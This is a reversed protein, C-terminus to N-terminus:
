PARQHVVEIMENAFEVIGCFRLRLGRIAEDVPEVLEDACTAAVQQQDGSCRGTTPDISVDFPHWFANEVSGFDLFEDIRGNRRVSLLLEFGVADGVAGKADRLQTAESYVQVM